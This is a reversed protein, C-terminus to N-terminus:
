APRDSQAKEVISRSASILSELARAHGEAGLAPLIGPLLGSLSVTVLAEPKLASGMSKSVAVLKTGLQGYTVDRGDHSLAIADPEAAAAAAVLDPLDRVTLAPKPAFRSREQDTLIDISRLVVAPDEAIAELIRAFRGAFLKITEPDFLDAAYTFRMQIEALRGLDDFQEMGTLQLDFKAQDFGDDFASVELGPLQLSRTTMNQFAFMVQFLPTYAASRQCGVVDVLREFPVDAHGFAALDKSRAQGLLEEFTSGSSVQTRLVVTNVFMGILEDLVQEGRGAVPTGIAIDTSGSMRSMLVAFASHIVMFMTANNDRAIRSLRDTVDSGVVFDFSGGRMSQRAPRPRDAPLELQEPVGALEDTWYALQRAILSEPDDESGLLERQWLSYDAYQVPLPSWSPVQGDVRSSYAIMVDRTLPGMSFGDASIHHVVVVFVYETPALEFLAARVPVSETVDFGTGVMEALAEGMAQETVQVPALSPAMEELPVIAQVPGDATDPYMTRLVEHRELVDLVAAELAPVDLLGSLRIAGPINYAASDPAMQNLVWMRQQALSLPIRAPREAAVLALRGGSGAHAEVRVALEGITPTDFLWLVPVQTDLAAGLRAAVQTAVLSNGGLAFFDDDLGVQEAGLVGAIIDAVLQEVVTAPARFEAAGFEPDPLAKRDIKGNINLPLAELVVFASPVMYSPLVAAAAAKLRAVDIDTDVAPVLYAVLREGTREDSRATVVVAAVSEERALAAEIEGLEIRFGRVKVQFDSRELYELEGDARWAVLDGTRYMREGAPGFPDAVFRDATLDVRGHYGRALQAGALYLEGGVGAPVPNLRADLVYVRTNWEPTGIPVSATDLDTVEHSTVSVAAETPGYLNFLRAANAARFSQATAAPLAEGIALVRRLSDSLAGGAAATSLMSVMSPVAHLTTVAQTRILDLLYDPDQHGGPKAIVLRGGSVVPTWFEWVSLDFTAATKLLAADSGDLGFEARMWLLQNVIASHSVAVGKPRGTSGSTFIVYAPHEPRLPRIRDADTVATDPYRSLDEQDLLLVSRDGAGDFDDRATSLVCVPAATELIHGIREAPHDPDIPVYAGGAAVVAYMGVVLDTSRRMALAVLSESGVGLEILRRALRNVRSGFDRYCLESGEFWLAPASPTAAVQADFLDALTLDAVQEGTDNWRELLREREAADLLELDGVTVDPDAVAAEVIRVFREAFREVSAQDFLDTAYHFMADVGVPAGDSDFRETLFLQLDFQTIQNDIELASVSLGPLELSKKAVNQFSFGVQFLPHRATSRTPNLVEVLREFPVDAHGFAALDSERVASVLEAFTKSGDVHTRFVLTNVFMGILDDMAAEGRGAIPTGVSIDDTGSLRALLVALATHTAMFLTAGQSRAVSALGRHLRADLEFAVRGGQNSRVAPRPRDSPLDLQDPLGALTRRWFDLQQGAVSTPDEESGLVDRQWLAYDAYQVSLESWEPDGGALRASYATMVDRVFPTISSGDAAIHHVVFALVFEGTALREASEVGAGDIEFLCVRLPVEVTVDFQTTAFEFLRQPLEDAGVLVPDLERRVAGPAEILQFPGDGTEPYRTRLSEHRAIVDALASELAHRDLEGTLRIAMPINYASSSSDFRNLFWMRQQALSLPIREPRDQAVLAPRAGTGALAGVASAVAAVTSSEFLTRVPVRTDLAVGIRAVVQAAILSNGGLEFFDDDLGVRELGLVEAFVGAVIEEAPTSPARYERVEFVPAPLAKRDLKGNATLPIEDLVVFASPVMYEPLATAAGDRVASVDLGSGSPVVYAVLTPNGPTDERVIVAAQGVSEQALVAAEIEGLEIRFGRVKVQDDARGLYELEGSANWRALDGSRYLASGDADFPNAVFRASSLAPQGLYGRALQVGAVYMEGPVGVPAPQLRGDLVYVRLGDIAQGVISASAAAATQADIERYSVHVTTETIGYMNVLTPATDPHRDYWDSLRRLELAEGGFVVYRLSLEAPAQRDAEALQYFASPTQNLVTVRERALLELFQEPSRSTYYDVVVLTGGYLLPGWLEWVSFDFAYSHFMTWVDSEDFGFRRETNRMLRTVTRHPVQVGKPRGTSGSTYIVYAVNGPRLPALRESDAVPAASGGSLDLTDLEIVPLGTPLAIERGTWTVVCVPAADSLMYEIRDAPYTPDVPLYGGGAKLVALLAVVLDLSRPLAVAALTEPGVGAAILRRALRNTREDLERYTLGDAGFRVAVRDPFSVAAVSFREILTADVGADPGAAPWVELLNRREDSSVLDIDGVASSPDASVAGLVQVLRKAFAHMTADDFLDTAYTLEASMGTPAGDDAFTESMTVQLDFKAVRADIEVGSVTLGPLELTPVDMNQFTLAVQFLPHRAQSRAPSLVEVLREFPVDTNAFAAVDVSRTQGLIEEFSSGSDVETRLVLTGVFMGVLDDLAAEGRGAVPAGIAIDSTGSLRALLVSLAAHVVMFLTAGQTRALGSLDRHLDADITFRHAAGRYSAVAPRTRDSPLDLQDPLGALADAWYRLQTSVLSQPDEESGLVERQWLAYDVYQVPLPSWAPAVGAARAAYATMVDRVLPSMSWGDASIHHVVFVLVFETVSTQLLTVRLPVQDTVDFGTAAERVLAEFMESENAAVPTLDPMAQAVPVIVQVPGDATDPYVTCLVEHRDLLDAVAARLAELDVSGTLRVAIPINNMASETDFQNLFWMRSQAPSLPIREPRPGAVLAVRGGEGELAGVAAALAVVTSSEFLIRVPVRTDLAAGIRAAVQAAILSNGGLEFFDDDLGVRELGLVEAFVGAVVGEIASEPARFERVEVAPAPLARRDLKGNATLPIEDVVVFASPVMYEPLVAAAGERVGPVDVTVGAALVLYAVLRASGPVDERVIVAVQAVSDQALLASEIEGLEIRFGRVKVQDDARGLYELDGNRNWRALDGSRYLRSGDVGFPDAVFRSASLAPQGLYGRSLQVGAVYMEGPVGVPVPSLREDLVYVRLGAIAQGVVSASASAAMVADIERYSVHVTTETIGYMNVLTPATDPHRDYWDSLRRLELAEGGFVVYRLSLEAGSQRDAEALQYFASPTQNLVTVRERALLELFQEPSRSTFYDVVVLTGGYLLPGWLEWVSFDFAYSHFMTWVDSEDFGFRDETNSMLRTVTRHPVQVGKPRGTSGSTYIVYAVNDPRLPSRRDPDSIAAASVADLAVVDLEIVPLASPLGMERGTWTLVCVPAADALMYEIRDAPYTPDVPLYGGGAKLVALLAVVLDASRPLAVAVLSEPGVGAEILVRALRNAREDLERYTLSVGEFRVAVSDARRAAVAEFGAVLTREVGSDVGSSNWQSLVCERETAGLLDIDGVPAAPDAVIATLIGVFRREFERITEADFLDTAYTLEAALGAAGSDDGTSETLNLQLDFKSIQEDYELAHINLGPLELETRAQNQLSLVVQFLPHRAQSRAPSLVEVLREFPVDANGFAAVDTERARSLIETFSRATDVETRLVLTNVFMGVLDDLAAEGRGAVPAGIAIDSTGSLRALLVSLAAHVVMFLTAGQARALEGLARHLDADIDFRHMAGRYSAAVPRQRDSPLDLQDPLGALTRTWYSLQVAAVSEPDEESGLLERQWLAYDAYQVPLPAWAPATGAARAAYAVMVDRAMPAMSWGDASIHHVVMALVFETDSTRLLSVRLPAQETVDFGTSFFEVLKGVLDSQTVVVPALVPAVKNVPLVVQQAGSETDPFVTRLAEHRDIVDAVARELADVDLEGSLAIALPLNYTVSEPDFRNLFWMRQQAPSLPIREPRVGAVLAARRPGTYSELRAALAAVTPAEFLVRVPVTADLAAGLRATVQTGILSNGGLEFFDDDIGVRDLGLVEAFVEAVISEHQTSPGRYSRAEFVPEPLAKRDLKGVPTLPVADIVMISSPVMHAPLLKAASERIVAPDLEAGDAGHLYSVLSTVGGAGQHGITVAFDVGPQAALVADIEGLEIRFGRVKVQFDTRGLYEIERDATWRALDGTRYMRQGPEGFPDAVFRDATLDPRGRYARALGAGVVYLEGVVGAPVPHLRRDLVLSGLGAVPGGITVLMGATLVDTSTALVTSETPGYANIFRRDASWRAMLEPPCAEGAVMLTALDDLGTPDMTALAGPTIIAHTVRRERLLDALEVGGFVDSPVIVMTAGSGFAMLAEYVAVDFSPSAVHLSRSGPALRYHLRQHEVANALGAHTVVVGKPRGTSGSTYIVYAPHAIRLPAIRDADSVPAASVAACRGIVEAGEIALWRLDTPLRDVFDAVTVGIVAGSDSVMHAVREAPYKPDVPVFAAGTKAVAWVVLVSEISRPIAVAVTCEPGAGEAILVRALRSSREDLERYTLERGGAGVLAIADPDLSAGAVFIEAMTQPTPPASPVSPMAGGWRDSLDARESPDLIEVDGVPVGPTAVVADLIRVFREAFGNVTSEDFLDKAYIFEAAVNERAGIAGPRDSITLQLDFKSVDVRVEDASVTLGPLEVEARDMNEFSLVVQFLPHRATSRAPNLVQVLREFPVDAHGFAALDDERVRSLLDAFSANPDVQTRLVLTNVFMGVLNDLAQEGRGAVVTGVAIDTTGSLRSLLVALAAHTVMFPTVGQARAYGVLLEYTNAPIEFALRGGEFSQIAPRPRDSPLDLQDPVGALANKWYEIQRASLSEPDDESGLLERQWLSYDAYQATLPSWAPAIGESRATYAVMVDRALVAWSMGDAAIHHLVMAVALEQKGLAFVRIRIPIENTVDFGAGAFDALRQPLEAETTPETFRDADAGLDIESSPIVVQHAGTDSDPFVTRLSEHREVVDTLAAALAGPDVAGSLRVVFPLNYTAAATDYQNLFWMRQQAPSLPVFDPRPRAILQPRSDAVGTFSEARVAIGAVTPAEFLARVGLRIGFAAGIRSVVQNAVLSDGGLEFFSDDIGVQPVHLVDAFIGAVIEETPTRPARFAARGSVFIPTPLARRDLKGSANVPFAELVVVVAPVMYAPLSRGVMAKLEDVDVAAGEVPVVYGVLQEGSHLDSRVMAVSQAVREDTLMASEIEGLEIRLGRLKVQFDTRGIYELEGTATWTVLDGTRYMRAGPAGFPSAVFRDATLDARGVYGRALQAGALYLEGAVGVPVPRLRSDLVFVQTNWVPAGIPVSTVDAPTVEHFTVDVAAETPGYLNHLRVAPLQERLIAATQAPLAEGSAFLQRLSTAGVVSPEAVFVALMSPVFHATTVSEEAIVTALYAPDRHGDPAAIVLRGGVQLPWFLEWVSVDFTVPTKQLVVDDSTLGYEAQMWVLRNVIAAHSVAVGKPRGTSGSTFIVYATNDPGLASIRDADSIPAGDVSSLDLADILLVSREGLIEFDDRTTSLVCAPAATEIINAIRDAPQDPDVPVYAGGAKVVAYIGVLLDLSRRMALAVLSEPGVGLTILHRALRNVRVDFETYSLSDGGFSLAVSDPSTAVRAEFLSVLTDDGIVQDTANWGTVVLEREADTTVNLDWVRDTPDAVLFQDFYSLFRAHYGQALEETYLNPNTEFDIHTRTGAVSQYFNVAMDEVTGTSLINFEGTVPGLNVESHFLMINVLPGLLDRQMNGSASDRRIDEHRYRQHRLAGSVAIQVSKLLDAVTTDNGVHFRLPVVNSLMGGSHRMPATTRATVPLSLIVDETDTMQALFGAFAAILMAAPSSNQQAVADVLNRSVDDSLAASAVGNLSAPAATRGSLSTGEEMGAIRQAWYEGDAAFRSSERYALDSEYLSRLSCAKSPAPERGELLATYLESVRMMYAMAGFGDLAIHHVRSYWFYREDEIRLITACILRDTLLDLPASFEARMWEHAAAVPDGHGRFDVFGVHDEISMDIVQYPTGDLEMLRLYGTGFEASGIHSADDLIQLDLPGRLDVYQAINIPVDPDVHQAYWMGLQAPSLPFTDAADTASGLQGGASAVRGVEIDIDRQERPAYTGDNDAGDHMNPKM